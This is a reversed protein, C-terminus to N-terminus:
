VHRFAFLRSGCFNVVLGAASGVTLGFLPALFHQPTVAIVAVYAVINIAGGCLQVVAYRCLQRPAHTSRREPFTWVRNLIWTVLVALSFSVGRSLFVSLGACSTLLILVTADSLFGVAGVATFKSLSPLFKDSM